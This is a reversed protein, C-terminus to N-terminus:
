PSLEENFSHGSRTVANDEKWDERFLLSEETMGYLVQSLVMTAFVTVM